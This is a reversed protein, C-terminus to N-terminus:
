LLKGANFLASTIAAGQCADRWRIAVDPLVKFIAAFLLTAVVFSIAFDLVRAAIGGGDPPMVQGLVASIVLSVLLILLVVLVMGMSVLRKRLFGWATLAITWLRSRPPELRRPKPAVEWISNLASQLQAFVASAAVLLGVSGVVTRWWSVEGTNPRDAAKVVGQALDASRPGLERSFQSLLEYKTSEGVLGGISVLLLVLPAFSLATYFALAAAQTLAAHASFAKFFERGFAIAKRFM